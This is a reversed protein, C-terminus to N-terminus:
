GVLFGNRWRRRTDELNNAVVGGNAFQGGVEGWVWSVALLMRGDNPNRSAIAVRDALNPLFRRGTIILRGGCEALGADDHHKRRKSSSVVVRAGPLTEKPLHLVHERCCLIQAALLENLGAANVKATMASAPRQHQQHSFAGVSETGNEGEPWDSIDGSITRLKKREISRGPAFTVQPRGDPPQVRDLTRNKHQFARLPAVETRELRHGPGGTIR